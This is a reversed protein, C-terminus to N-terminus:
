KQEWIQPNILFVWLVILNNKQCIIGNIGRIMSWRFHFVNRAIIHWKIRDCAVPDPNDYTTLLPHHLASVAQGPDEIRVDGMHSRVRRDGGPLKQSPSWCAAPHGSAETESLSVSGPPCWRMGSCEPSPVLCWAKDQGWKSSCSRWHNKKKGSCFEMFLLPLPLSDYIEKGRLLKFFFHISWLDFVM